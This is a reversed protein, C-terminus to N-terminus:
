GVIRSSLGSAPPVGFVRRGSQGEPVRPLRLHYGSGGPDARCPSPRRGRGGAWLAAVHGDSSRGFCGQGPAMTPIVLHCGGRLGGCEAGQLLASIGGAGDLILDAGVEDGLKPSAALEKGADPSVVIRDDGLEDIRDQRALVQDEEAEPTLGLAPDEALHGPEQIRLDGDERVRLHVVVGQSRYRLLPPAQDVLGAVVGRDFPQGPLATVHLLQGRGVDRNRVQDAIHVGDLRGPAAVEERVLQRDVEPEERPRVPPEERQVLQRVKRALDLDPEEIDELLPIDLDLAERDAEHEVNEEQERRVRFVVRGAALDDGGELIADAGLDPRVIRM